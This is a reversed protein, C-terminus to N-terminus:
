NTIDYCGDAGALAGCTPAGGAFVAGVVTGSCATALTGAAADSDSSLAVNTSDELTAGLHYATCGANLPSFAYDGNSVPDKPLSPIYTPALAALSYPYQRNPDFYLEMALQLSKVDAVRKTDRAKKRVTTLSAVVITSLLGIISIVVLLEILTFGKNHTTKM